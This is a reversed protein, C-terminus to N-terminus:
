KEYINIIEKLKNLGKLLVDRDISFSIRFYDEFNSGYASGPVLAVGGVKLAIKCFQDADKIGYQRLNVFYYFAGDPIFEKWEPFVSNVLSRNEKYYSVFHHIEDPFTDEELLYQAFMSTCTALNQQIKIVKDLVRTDHMLLYGIRFGTMGHSKSFGNGVILRSYSYPISLMGTIDCDYSYFEYISDLIVWAKKSKAIEFITDIQDQPLIKGDPNNPICLILVEFDEKRLQNLWNPGYTNIPLYTCGSLVCTAQYGLWAPELVAVKTKGIAELVYYLGQKLGPVVAVNDKDYGSYRASINERLKLIGQAPGYHTSDSPLSSLRKTISSPPDFHTDGISLKFVEHGEQKMKNATHTLEMSASPKLDNLNIM